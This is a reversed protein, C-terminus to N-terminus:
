YSCNEVWVLKVSLGGFYSIKSESYKYYYTIKGGVNGCVNGRDITEVEESVCVGWCGSSEYFLLPM